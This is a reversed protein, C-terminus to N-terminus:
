PSYESQTPFKKIKRMKGKGCEPCCTIDTGTLRLMMEEITENTKEPLEAKSNILRRILPITQKKNTNALFGFYRIKMFGKPLVHLLFRRVFEDAPLSMTKTQNKRKRDRYIFIVEDNDISIIRNNSIAVRHTYRGLYELVQEPGAFPRKAYAIWKVASLSRILRNFEQDSKFVATNGPFILEGDRNAKKLCRLYRKRFEKALSGIAFLYKARSSVWKDKAFSLAGAPILCHLHFHDILTQSWTHLVAIMGLQGELRWQPDKAFAQLTEKVAAFLINLTIRKNCLIIPNLDHPLTFVLHFYGCPLLEAKRDNLWREKVLTQCKPCHRDRCSNYSIRKFKCQDCQEAHGGLAATRCIEIHHMVKNQEYSLSNFKRYDDGYLRFIDAVEPKEKEKGNTDTPETHDNKM